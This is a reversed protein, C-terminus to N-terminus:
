KWSFSFPSSLERRRAVKDLYEWFALLFVMAIVIKEAFAQWQPLEWFDFCTYIEGLLIDHHHNKGL